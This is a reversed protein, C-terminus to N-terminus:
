WGPTCCSSHWVKLRTYMALKVLWSPLLFYTPYAELVKLSLYLPWPWTLEIMLGLFFCLVEREVQM